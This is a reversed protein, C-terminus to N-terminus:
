SGAVLLVQNFSATTMLLTGVTKVAIGMMKLVIFRMTM